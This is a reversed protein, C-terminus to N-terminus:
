HTADKDIGVKTLDGNSLTYAMQAYHCMKELDNKKGSGYWCRLAYRIINWLCVRPETISMLDFGMSGQGYKKVTNKEIYDHMHKAFVDWDGVRDVNKTYGEPASGNM